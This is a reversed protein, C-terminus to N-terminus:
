MHSWSKTTHGVAHQGAEDSVGKEDSNGDLASTHGRFMYSHGRFLYSLNFKDTILWFKGFLVKEPLNEVVL